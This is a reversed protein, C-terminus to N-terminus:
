SRLRPASLFRENIEMRHIRGAQAGREILRRASKYDDLAISQPLDPNIRMYRAQGLLMVALAAASQSQAGSVLNIIRKKRVWGLVGLNGGEEYSLRFAESGTGVSLVSVGDISCGFYRVAEAIGVVAPNNAWVGGDIHHDHDDVQFGPFYFPAASSAAAVRWALQDGGWHLDAHHDDKFVRPTGEVLEYSPICVSARLDELKTEGLIHQLANVLEKNSYRPRFIQLARRVPTRRSFIRPGYDQYFALMDAASHGAALGLAIIAGTSSGVLLDFYDILRKNCYTEIHALVAASFFGRIGGGDLSLIRFNNEPNGTVQSSTVLIIGRQQM